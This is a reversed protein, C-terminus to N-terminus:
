ITKILDGNLYFQIASGSCSIYINQTTPTCAVGCTGWRSTHVYFENNAHTIGNKDVTFNGSGASMSGDKYIKFPASSYNAVNEGAMFVIGELFDSTCLAIGNTGFSTSYLMDSALAFGAITGSTSTLKFVKSDITAANFDIKLGSTNAVYNSSQITGATITGMDASIASLKTVSIEASTITNAAIQNATITKAAIQASTISQTVIKGGDIVTTGAPKFEGPPKIGSPDSEIQIADIYLSVNSKLGIYLSLYSSIATTRFTYRAWSTGISLDSSRQSNSYSPATTGYRAEIFATSAVSARMYCTIIYSSEVIVPISGHNSGGNLYIGTDADFASNVLMLCKSGYYPNLTTMTAYCGYTANDVSGINSNVIQEMTDYGTTYLNAGLGVFLKDTTIANTAIQTATITGAAIQAATITNAAIKDATVANAYLKDTTIAGSAINGAIITSSAIQSSTISNAVIATAAVTGTYLKAGNIYTLNNNYCWNAISATSIANDIDEPAMTWDTAKTGFELKIDSLYLVNNANDVWFSLSGTSTPTYTVTYRAWTNTVTFPNSVYGGWAHMKCTASDSKAYFSLTYTRGVIHNNVGDSFPTQYIRCDLNGAVTSSFKIYKYIGDTGFGYTINAFAYWYAFTASFFSSNRLLNRGGIVVTDTISTVAASAINSFAVGGSAIASSGFSAPVWSSGDYRYMKYGNGTDFWLDGSVLGSTPASTAYYTKNKGNAITTASNATNQAIGANALATSANSSATSITSALSDSLKSTDIAGNAIQQGNLTGVTLNACNMNIVNIKACDIDGATLKSATINVIKGDTISADAIQATGIAGTDIMATKIAGANINTLDIKAYKIDAETATLSTTELTGVRASVASLKGSIDVDTATLSKITATTAIVAEVNVLKNADLSDVTDGDVTGDDTTINDVTDSTDDYKQTYEEFTLVINALECTNNEPNDPYEVTKAIRQKEKINGTSDILTVTDGVEYALIDYKDEGANALDIIDATYSAYPESLDELKAAADEMLSQANTYREDKWYYTKVKTSYQYNELYKKGGNVSEITLGDKGVPIIRTYFTNTDSKKGVKKLNLQDTFYVGKDSGRQEVFTLKKNLSDIIVEVRYTKIAQKIIDWTYKNTLKLTRKKTLACTCSWGTGALALDIANKLTQETTNFTDFYTGELEDINLQATVTANSNDSSYDMGKIVYEADETQLYNEEKLEEPRCSATISFSLVRDDYDLAREIKLNSYQTVPPQVQRAANLLKLM